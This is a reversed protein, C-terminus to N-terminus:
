SLEFHAIKLWHDIKFTITIITGHNNEFNIQGRIEKILGKMLNLGLTDHRNLDASKSMGVGNDKIMLEVTDSKQHMRISIQGNESRPFAHKMSNTIAENLVLALPVAQSVSLQIPDVDLTFHIYNDTDLSGRLYSVFEPLYVSMDIAKVEDSQYLKQHILSMSFIRNRSSEMAKLADNELYSAQTELLSIITHLNNKVRHHVEKLLWDKEILLSDKETLIVEKENLLSDKEAVTLELSKNIQNIENQQAQLLRNSQQKQRYRWYGLVLSVLLLIAGAVIFNRVIGAHQLEVQQLKGKNELQLVKQDKEYQLQIQAIQKAKAVSKVSDNLLKYRQYNKIASIYNGTLSDTKFLDLYSNILVEVTVGGPATKLAKQLYIRAPIYRKHTFFHEGLHWYIYCLNLKDDFKEGAQIAQLYNKETLKDNGLWSYYNGLRYFIAEKTVLSVTPGIKPISLITKGAEKERHERMLLDFITCKTVYLDNPRKIASAAARKLWYINKEHDGLLRYIYALDMYSTWDFSTDHTAEVSQVTKLAYFLAKDYNGRNESEARLLDYTFHLNKYGISQYISLAKLFVKESEDYKGNRLINIGLEKIM